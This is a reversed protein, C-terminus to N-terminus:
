RIDSIEYGDWDQGFAFHERVYALDKYSLNMTVIAEQYPETSALAHGM